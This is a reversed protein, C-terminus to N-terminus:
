GFKPILLTCNLPRTPTHLSGRLEGPNRWRAFATKIAVLRRNDRTDCHTFWQGSVVVVFSSRYLVPALRARIHYIPARFMGGRRHASVPETVHRGGRQRPATTHRHVGGPPRVTSLSTHPRKLFTRKRPKTMGSGPVLVRAAPNRRPPQTFLGGNPPEDAAAGSSYPMATWYATKFFVGISTRDQCNPHRKQGLLAGRKSSRDSPVVSVVASSNGTGIGLVTRIAFIERNERHRRNKHQRRGQAAASELRRAEIKM